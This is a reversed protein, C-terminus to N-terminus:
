NRSSLGEINRLASKHVMIGTTKAKVFAESAYFFGKYKGSEGWSNKVIYFKNGYQDHAKGILHMGHDDTTSRNLFDIQRTQQTVSVEVGPTDLAKAKKLQDEPSMTKFSELDALRKKYTAEAAKMDKKKINPNNKPDDPYPLGPLLAYGNQMDFGKESIDSAWLVSHGDALTQDIVKILDDVPLNVFSGWRWNDPIELICEKYFPHHSFSTVEVYDGFNLGVVDDAFSRPTYEKGQYQFKEPVPAFFGNIGKVFDDHWKPDIKKKDDDAVSDAFATTWKELKGHSIRFDNERINPMASEPVLGHEMAVVMVDHFYSGQGYNMKGHLMVYKDTRDIYNQRVVFMESLNPPNANGNSRMESELFSMSSFCWCTGSYQQDPVPSCKIRIDDTFQFQASAQFGMAALALILFTKKM